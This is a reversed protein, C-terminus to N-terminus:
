RGAGRQLADIMQELTDTAVALADLQEEPMEDLLDSLALHGRTRLDELAAAGGSTLSVLVVRGDDVLRERAVLGERELRKVLQTMTPQALGELEALETIRRPRDSLTSLLGADTRSLGGGVERALLRTLLATRSILQTSIRRAQEARELEAGVTM